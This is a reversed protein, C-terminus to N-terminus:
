KFTSWHFIFCEPQITAFDCFRDNLLSSKLPLRLCWDLFEDIWIWPCLSGYMLSFLQFNIQVKFFQSLAKPDNKNTLLFKPYLVLYVLYVLENIEKWWLDVHKQKWFAAVLVFRVKGILLYSWWGFRNWCAFWLLTWTIGVKSSKNYVPDTCIYIAMYM